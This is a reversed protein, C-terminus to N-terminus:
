IMRGPGMLIEILAKFYLINCPRAPICIKKKSHQFYRERTLSAFSHSISEARSSLIRIGLRGHLTRNIKYISIFNRCLVCSKSVRTIRQLWPSVLIRVRGSVHFIFITDESRAIFIHNKLLLFFAPIEDTDIYYFLKYFSFCLSFSCLSLSFMISISEWFFLVFLFSHTFFFTALLFQGSWFYRLMGHHEKNTVGFIQM